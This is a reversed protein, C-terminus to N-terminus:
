VALMLLALGPDAKACLFTHPTVFFPASNINTSFVLSTLSYISYHM